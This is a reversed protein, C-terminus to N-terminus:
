DTDKMLDAPSHLSRPAPAARSSLAPTTDPVLGFRERLQAAREEQGARVEERFLRAGVGVGRLRDRLGDASLSEAARRVRTIAYAGAGAGAVFWLSRSM